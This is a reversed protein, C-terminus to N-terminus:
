MDEEVEIIDEEDILVYHLWSLKVTYTWRGKVLREGNIVIEGHWFMRVIKFGNWFGHKWRKGIITDGISYKPKTTPFDKDKKKWGM